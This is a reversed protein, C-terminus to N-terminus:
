PPSQCLAVNVELRTFIVLVEVLGANDVLVSCVQSSQDDDVEDAGAALVLLVIRALWPEECLHDSQSEEIELVVVVELLGTSDVELDLLGASDVVEVVELLGTLGVVDVEVVGASSLVVM